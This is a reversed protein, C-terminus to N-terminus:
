NDKLFYNVTTENGPNHIWEFQLDKGVIFSYSKSALKGSPDEEFAMITGLRTLDMYRNESIPLLEVKALESDDGKRKYYFKNNEIWFKRPGYDGVFAMNQKAIYTSDNEKQYNLYDLINQLYVHKPNDKIAKEYLTIAKDYAKRDLAANAEQISVNEKWFWFYVTNKYYVTSINIGIPKGSDDLILNHKYTENNVYGTVASNEGALLLADMTQNKVFLILRNHAIWYKHVRESNESRYQGEFNKLRSVEYDKNKLYAIASDYVSARNQYGPNLIKIEELITEAKDIEGKFLHAQLRYLKLEPNIIEYNQIENILLDDDGNVMSATALNTGTYPNQTLDFLRRSAELYKDTQQTEGYISFLVDNYFDNQPDVELQLKVQETAEDFNNYALNRQIHAELQKQLPLRRRNEFAKDALDQVELPSSGSRMSRKANELYALAFNKDIEAAKSFNGNIYAEIAEVSNSMFENVPFDLYRLNKTEVFGSNETIFVTIDDILTLLDNGTFLQQTLIKGNTSKRKFVNIIYTEGVKKYDGDIYFDDFLSAEKIKTSTDVLFSFDPSLSKNQFLDEEVLRGIGYRLWNDSKDENLNEFNYIPVGIRFEEKTILQKALQGEDNTYSIEKTTAGLDSNGFVFYTVLALLIINLPFIIKERLKLIGANIRDQHYFYILVSPIIGVFIWLLLDVWNPSIDYRLLIWDVFQLFTWAAVLYAALFKFTNIWKKKRNSDKM